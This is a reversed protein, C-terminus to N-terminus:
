KSTWPHRSPFNATSFCSVPPCRSHILQPPPPPLPSLFSLVSTVGGLVLCGNGSGCFRWKFLLLKWLIKSNNVCMRIAVWDM